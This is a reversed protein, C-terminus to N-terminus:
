RGIRNTRRATPLKSEHKIQENQFRIQNELTDGYLDNIENKSLNKQDHKLIYENITKLDESEFTIKENKM